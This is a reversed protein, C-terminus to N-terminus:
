RQTRAFRYTFVVEGAANLDGRTWGQRQYFRDARTGPDTSLSAVATNQERFWNMSGKMLERGIGQGEYSPRVFLAWLVVEPEMSAISFAVAKGEDLCIWAGDEACRRVVEEPPITMNILRNEKVAYRIDYLDRLDRETLGDGALPRFEFLM